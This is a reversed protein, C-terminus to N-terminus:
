KQPPKIKGQKMDERIKLISAQFSYDEPLEYLRTLIAKAMDKAGELFDNETYVKNCVSKHLSYRKWEENLKLKPEKKLSDIKANHEHLKQVEQELYEKETAPQWSTTYAGQDIWPVWGYEPKRDWKYVKHYATGSKIYDVKEKMWPEPAHVAVKKNEPEDGKKIDELARQLNDIQEQMAKLRHEHKMYDIQDKM